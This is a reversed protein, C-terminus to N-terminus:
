VERPDYGEIFKKFVENFNGKNGLYKKAICMALGTEKNYEDGPQCKVVTKTGDAWIVITAPDNFIVRDIPPKGHFHIEDFCWSTITKGNSRGTIAYSRTENVVFGTMKSIIHDYFPRDVTKLVPLFKELTDLANMFEAKDSEKIINM